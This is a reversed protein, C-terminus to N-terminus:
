HQPASTIDQWPPCGSCGETKTQLATDCPKHGEGEKDREGGARVRSRGATHPATRMTCRFSPQRSTPSSSSHSTYQVSVDTVMSRMIFSLRVWTHPCDTHPLTRVAPRLMLQHPCSISSSSQVHHLTWTHTSTHVRSTPLHSVYRRGLCVRLSALPDPLAQHAPVPEQVWVCAKDSVRGPEPVGLSLESDSGFCAKVHVNRSEFAALIGVDEITSGYFILWKWPMSSSHRFRDM